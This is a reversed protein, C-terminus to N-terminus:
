GKVDSCSEYSYGQEMCYAIAKETTKNMKIFLPIMLIFLILAIIFENLEEKSITM